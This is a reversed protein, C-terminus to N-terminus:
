CRALIADVVEPLPRTADIAIANAPLDVRSAHLTEVLAREEARSGWEDVRRELRAAITPWDAELLFIADFRHAFHHRNRSAGCFFAVARTKDDTIAEVQAVDWIHHANIFAPNSSCDEPSVRLGTEPEGQYALVRDGHIVQFDRSELM